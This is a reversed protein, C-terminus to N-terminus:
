APKRPTPLSTKPKPPYKLEAEKLANRITDDTIDIGLTELGIEITKPVDTRLKGLEYKYRNMAMGLVLRLLTKRSVDDKGKADDPDIPQDSLRNLDERKVFLKGDTLADKVLVQRDPIMVFEDTTNKSIGIFDNLKLFIGPDVGHRYETITHQSLAILGYIPPIYLARYKGNNPYYTFIGNTVIKQFNDTPFNDPNEYEETMKLAKNIYEDVNKVEKYIPSGQKISCILEVTWGGTLLYIPLEGIEAGYFLDDITCDYQEIVEAISLEERRLNLKIKAM